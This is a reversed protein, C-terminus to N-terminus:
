NQDDGHHEGQAPAAPDRCTSSIKSKSQEFPRSINWSASRFPPPDLPGAWRLQRHTTM